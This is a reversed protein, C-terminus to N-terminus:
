HCNLVQVIEKTNTFIKNKQRLMIESSNLLGKNVDFPRIFNWVKRNTFANNNSINHFYEKICKMKLAVCINRQKKYLKENEKIPNKCFKNGLRNRSYIEKRLNITIFHAQNRRMFKKKLPAHNNVNNIFFNTLFYYKENPDDTKLSFDCNKVGNLFNAENFKKYSRYCFTKPKLKDYCSKLFTCIVKYHDSFGTEIANKKKKQFFNPKNILFLDITLSNTFCTNSKIINTLSFLSLFEDLKHSEPSAQRININFDGVVIFNGYNESAQNLYKGIAKFFVM